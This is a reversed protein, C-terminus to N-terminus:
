TSRMEKERKVEKKIQLGPRAMCDWTVQFFKRHRGVGWKQRQINPNCVIGVMGLIGKNKQLFKQIKHFHLKRIM